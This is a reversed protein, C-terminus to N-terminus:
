LGSDWMVNEVRETLHLMLLLLQEGLPHEVQLFLLQQLLLLHVPLVNGPLDLLILVPPDIPNVLTYGQEIPGLLLFVALLHSM